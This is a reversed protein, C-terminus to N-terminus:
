LIIFLHPTKRVNFHPQISYPSCNRHTIPELDQSCIQADPLHDQFCFSSRNLAATEWKEVRQSFFTCYSGPSSPNSPPLPLGKSRSSLGPQLSLFFSVTFLSTLTKKNKKKRQTAKGLRFYTLPSRPARPPLFPESSSSWSVCVWVSFLCHKPLNHNDGIVALSVNLIDSLATQRSPILNTSNTFLDRRSAQSFKKHAQTNIHKRVCSQKASICAQTVVPALRVNFGM